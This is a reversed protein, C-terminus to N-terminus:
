QIELKMKKTMLLHTAIIIIALLIAPGYIFISGSLILLALILRVIVEWVHLVRHDFRCLSSAVLYLSLTLRVLLWILNTININGDYGTLYKGKSDDPSLVAADILLLEPHFAFVFPIVFIVIGSRVASFGTTMPEEKTISAAAFAAIAVPPTIASAVAFYFIFMHATFTAIGLGALMPGMLLAVNIYAPVSPMGMGLLVAMLMTLLLAIFLLFPSGTVSLDMSTLVALIDRAIYTSFGTLNLCFDIVSVSLFMLYLTSIMVGANALAHLIKSPQSRIKPDLFLLLLLLICAWWGSSGADGASNQIVKFFWPLQDATCSTAGPLKEVGFLSGIFGCGVQEKPTLLLGLILLLPAVIMILNFKDQRDLEMDETIKGIAKINQKRAQFVASLFLCGFYAVAPIIAAIIVERYPVQTLAALIFAAVGMIPPMIQGGSSAAAEVGGAFIKSFGRKVMMPITLVGTALVNVVPGGSITGFLASSVIAAHAPGGNLKRTWRFALKILSKGGASAGFLSGLIIFPFVTNLLIDMFRGLLGSSNNVIIDHVKPRGDILQRPDSGLKTVLYKNIDEAGYFYWVAITFFSYTVVIITVMVLPFGWVKINYILFIAITAAMIAFLWVGTTAMCQPDDVGSPAPLGYLEAFAIEEKLSEAILKAREGTIQDILCVSDIEVLYTIAMLSTVFLMTIDFLIGVRKGTVSQADRFFSHKLVTVLMMMVFAIPHLWEYPFKRILVAELNFISAITHELGPISPINNVMGLFVLLLGIVSAIKIGIDTNDPSHM